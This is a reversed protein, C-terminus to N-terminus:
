RQLMHIKSIEYLHFQVMHPKTHSSRESLMILNAMDYCKDSCVYCKVYPQGYWLMYWFKM